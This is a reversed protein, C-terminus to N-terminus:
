PLEVQAPLGAPLDAASAPLQVEALWVLRSRETSNLAYYPTFAPEQSIWRITGTYPQTFGDVHVVLNAGTALAARSAEPLYVRAHPAGEALLIALPQGVAVREGTQWPLSDLTGARTAVISLNALQQRATVLRASTTALQAEAQLLAESRTGAQLLQLQAQADRLRAANSARRSELTEMEAQAGVGQAVLTTSRALDRESEQLVARAADVRATAAALEETRAGNQLENLRAQQQAVEAELGAVVSQQLTTDLQVLLDGAAVVSGEAVPQSTILEAATASLTIRDRELTGLALPPAPESCGALLLCALLLPLTRHYLFPLPNM